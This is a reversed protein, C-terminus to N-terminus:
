GSSTEPDKQIHVNNGGISEPDLGSHCLAEERTMPYYEQAHTENYGFPSLSAPFFEGWEGAKQMHEIIKPVLEEYQEKTYQKNFICYQENDHLGVCGFCDRIENLCHDSYFV